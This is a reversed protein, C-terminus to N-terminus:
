GLTNEIASLLERPSSPKHLVAVARPALSLAVERAGTYLVIPVPIKAGDLVDLFEACSMKPMLCDLLIVNPRAGRLLAGLAAQSDTFADVLYGRDVLLEALVEVLDTDDDVVFVSVPDSM